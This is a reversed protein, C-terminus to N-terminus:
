KELVVSKVYQISIYKHIWKRDEGVLINNNTWQFFLVVKSVAMDETSLIYDPM